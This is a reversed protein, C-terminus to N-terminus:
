ESDDDSDSALHKKAPAKPKNAANIFNYCHYHYFSGDTNIVNCVQSGKEICISCIDVLCGRCITCYQVPYNVQRFGIPTLNTLTFIKNSM